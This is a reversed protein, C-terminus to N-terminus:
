SRPHLLHSVENTIREASTTIFALRGRFFAYFALIPIAILLGFATTIMAKALGQALSVPQITGARFAQYDFADIMGLVTGLLGLMPAIVAMDGLYSLNQWLREIRSKGESQMAEESVAKGRSLKKLGAEVIGGIFSPQQQCVALAKEPQGKELLHLLNEVYDSPLLRAATVQRFHYIILATALVSILALPIMVWGGAVILQWLSMDSTTAPKRAAQQAAQATLPLASLFLSTLVPVQLGTTRASM